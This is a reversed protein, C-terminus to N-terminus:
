LGMDVSAIREIRGDRGMGNERGEPQTLVFVEGEALASSGTMWDTFSALVWDLQLDVCPVTTIDQDGM